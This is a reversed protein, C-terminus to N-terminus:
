AHAPAAAAGPRIMRRGLYMFPTDLFAVVVRLAFTGLIYTFVLARWGVPEPALVVWALVSFITNDILAAVITSVNNRLWIHRGRTLRKLAQFLWVDTMQSTLYAAMGAVFLAPVPTFLLRMADQVPLAWGLEAGAQEPTLPAYGLTLMMLVVWILLAAFGIMVGRQAAARGWHETLLDTALYSSTFLITGLAVPEPFVGFQVIKVVQVNAGLIAIVIYVYLGAAGFLRALLLISGFCVLILPLWILEPPWSNLEAILADPSLSLM